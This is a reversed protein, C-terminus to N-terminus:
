RGAQRVAQQGEQRGPGWSSSCSSILPVVAMWCVGCCLWTLTRSCGGGGGGGGHMTSPDREPSGEQWAIAAEAVYAPGKRGARPDKM